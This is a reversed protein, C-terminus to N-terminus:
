RKPEPPLIEVIDALCRNEGDLLTNRRGYLVHAGELGLVENILRDSAVKLYAQPNSSYEVAYDKLVTGLPLEESLIAQRAAESFLDLDIRIAGFEVPKLSKETQLYVERSYIAGTQTRNLVSVIINEGHFNSLTSTMDRKHVLLSKYPEPVNRGPVQELPPLSANSRAYFAELPQAVADTQFTFEMSATDPMASM